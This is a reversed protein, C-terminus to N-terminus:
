SSTSGVGLADYYIHGQGCASDWKPQGFHAIVSPTPDFMYVQSGFMGAMDVDFSIDEGVGFSYVVAPQPLREPNCVWKGGDELRGVRMTTECDVIADFLYGRERVKHNKAFCSPCQTYEALVRDQVAIREKMIEARGKLVPHGTYERNKAEIAENAKFLKGGCSTAALAAVLAPVAFAHKINNM